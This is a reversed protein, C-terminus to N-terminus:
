NPAAVAMPDSQSAYLKRTAEQMDASVTRWMKELDRIAVAQIMNDIDSPTLHLGQDERIKKVTQQQPNAKRTASEWITPPRNSGEVVADDNALIRHLLYTQVNDPVNEIKGQTGGIDPYLTVWICFEFYRIWVDLNIAFSDFTQSGPLLILALQDMETGSYRGSALALDIESLVLNQTEIQRVFFELANRVVHATPLDSGLQGQTPNPTALAVLKARVAGVTSAAAVASDVLKFTAEHYLPRVDNQDLFGKQFLKIEAEEKELLPRYEDWAAAATAPNTPYSTKLLRRYAEIKNEWEKKFQYNLWAGLDSKPVIALALRTKLLSNFLATVGKAIM